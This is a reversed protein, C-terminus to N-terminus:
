HLLREAWFVQGGPGVGILAVLLDEVAVDRLVAQITVPSADVAWVSVASGTTVGRLWPYRREARDLAGDTGAAVRDPRAAHVAVFGPMRHRRQDLVVIRLSGGGRVGGPPTSSM